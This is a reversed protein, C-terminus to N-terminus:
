GKKQDGDMGDWGVGDELEDICRRGCADGGVRDAGVGCLRGPGEGTPYHRRILLIVQLRLCTLPTRVTRPTREKMRKKLSGERAVRGRRDAGRMWM